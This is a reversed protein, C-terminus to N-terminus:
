NAEANQKCSTSRKEIWGVIEGFIFRRKLKGGPGCPILTFPVQNAAVLRDVTREACNLLDALERKSLLRYYSTTNKDTPHRMHYEGQGSPEVHVLTCSKRQLDLHNKLHNADLIMTM